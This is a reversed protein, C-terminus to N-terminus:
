PALCQRVLEQAKPTMFGNRELVTMATVYQALRRREQRVLRNMIWRTTMMGVVLGLSLGFWFVTWSWM